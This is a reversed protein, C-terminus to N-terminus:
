VNIGQARLQALQVANAYAQQAQAAEYNRQAWYANHHFQQTAIGQENSKLQNEYQQQLLQRYLDSARLGEDQMLGQQQWEMATQQGQYAELLRQLKAVRERQADSINFTAKQQALEGTRSIDSLRNMRNLEIDGRSTLYKGQLGANAKLSLGSQWLGRRAMDMESRRQQEQLQNALTRGSIDYQQNARAGAATNQALIQGLNYNQENVYRDYEPGLESKGWNYQQSAAQRQRQLDRLAASSALQAAIRAQEEITTM